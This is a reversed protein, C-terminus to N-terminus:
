DAPLINALAAQTGIAIPTAGGNWARVTQSLRVFEAQSYGAVRLGTSATADVLDLAASFASYADYTLETEMSRVCKAVFSALSEQGTLVRYLSVTVAIQRPEPNLVVQGRYQKKLETQRKARGVKSIAFLDRPEVNFVATDGFGISRVDSYIGISDIITQPLIMDILNSVVAFTAFNLLPHTAWTALPFDDINSIGAKRVIEKKLAANLAAEKESLSFEVVKGDVTKTNHFFLGKKGNMETQYHNWYDVFAKYIDLHNEGAFALVNSPVQTNIAM